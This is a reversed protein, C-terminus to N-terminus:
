SGPWCGRRRGPGSASVAAGTSTASGAPVGRRARTLSNKGHHLDVMSPATRDGVIRDLPVFHHLTPFRPSGEGRGVADVWGDLAPARSCLSDSQHEGALVPVRHVVVALPRGTTTRRAVRLRPRHHRTPDVRKGPSGKGRRICHLRQRRIRPSAERDGSGPPVSSRPEQEGARSGGWKSRCPRPITMGAESRSHPRSQLVLGHDHTRAIVCLDPRRARHSSIGAALHLRGVLRASCRSRARSRRSAGGCSGEPDSRPDTGPRLVVDLRLVPM